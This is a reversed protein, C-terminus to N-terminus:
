EKVQLQNLAAKLHKLILDAQEPNALAESIASHCLTAVAWEIADAPIPPQGVTVLGSNKTFHMRIFDRDQSEDAEHLFAATAAYPDRRMEPGAIGTHLRGIVAKFAYQYADKLDSFYKYFAGRAIDAQKVIRAVQAQALPHQSFETMLAALVRQQKTQDLHQFTALVM